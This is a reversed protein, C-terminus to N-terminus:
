EKIEAIIMECNAGFRLKYILSFAVRIRNILLFGIGLESSNDEVTHQKPSEKDTSEEDKASEPDEVSGEQSKPREGALIM